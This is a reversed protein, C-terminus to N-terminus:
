GQMSSASMVTVIFSCLFTVLGLVFHRKEKTMATAAKLDEESMRSNRGARAFGRGGIKEGM